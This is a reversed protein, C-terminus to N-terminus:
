RGATEKRNMLTKLRAIERRTHRIVLPNALQGLSNKMRSDFLEKSLVVIQTKAEKPSTVSSKKKVTKAM